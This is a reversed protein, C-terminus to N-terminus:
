WLVNVWGVPGLKPRVKNCGARAPQGPSITGRAFEVQAAAGGVARLIVLWLIAFGAQAGLTTTAILEGSGVISASLILGPGFYRLSAGWGKPPELIGEPTLHYADDDTVSKLVVGGEDAAMRRRGQLEDRM